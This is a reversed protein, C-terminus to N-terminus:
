LYAVVEINEMTILGGGVMEKLKPLIKMIKEESDVVHIVIPLNDSLALSRSSRIVASKGYGYMCRQVTAGAIGNEHCVNVLAKYLPLGDFVDSGGIYIKLQKNIGNM